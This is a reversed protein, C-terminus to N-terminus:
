HFNDDVKTHLRSTFNFDNSIDITRSDQDEMADTDINLSIDVENSEQMM